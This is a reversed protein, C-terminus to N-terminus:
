LQYHWRHREEPYVRMYQRHYPPYGSLRRLRIPIVSTTVGTRGKTACCVSKINNFCYISFPSDVDCVTYTSQFGKFKRRSVVASGCFCQRQRRINDNRVVLKFGCVTGFNADLVTVAKDSGFRPHEDNIEGFIRNHRM